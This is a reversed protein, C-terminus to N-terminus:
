HSFSPTWGFACIGLSDAMSQTVQPSFACKLVIVDLFALIGVFCAFEVPGLSEGLESSDDESSDFIPRKEQGSSLHM